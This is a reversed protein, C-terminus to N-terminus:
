AKNKKKKQKHKNKKKELLLRCVLNRGTEHARLHTYSVPFAGLNASQTQKHMAYQGEERQVRLSQEYNEAEIRQKDHINKINAATQAQITDSTVKRTVAM